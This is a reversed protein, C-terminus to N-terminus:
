SKEGETKNPEGKEIIINFPLEPNEGLTIDQPPKGELMQWVLSPQKDILENIFKKFRKPDKQFIQKIKTKISISGLQKGGKKPHGKIFKGSKDRDVVTDGGNQPKEQKPIIM